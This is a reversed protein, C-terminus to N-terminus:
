VNKLFRKIANPRKKMTKGKDGRTIARCCLNGKCRGTHCQTSQQYAPANTHLMADDTLRDLDAEVIGVERLCTELGARKSIDVLAEIFANARAERTGTATPAVIVALEAYLSAAVPLNFRLVHPLVLANSLGHPVNFIGGIPYALAHVAACPANAFAHGAFMEELLMSQRKSIDTGDKCVALLNDALLSLAKCALMDSIPNKKHRITYAEIAHVMADIDTAATIKKPLGVTLEADLVVLDAYM